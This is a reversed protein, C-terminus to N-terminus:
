LRFLATGAGETYSFINGTARDGIFLTGEDNVAVSIPQDVVNISTLFNGAADYKAISKNFADTVYLTGERDTAIRLPASIGESIRDFHAVSDSKLQADVSGTLLFLASVFSLISNICTKM